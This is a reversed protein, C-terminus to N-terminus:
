KVLMMKKTATFENGIKVTYFYLGSTLNKSDFTVTHRGADLTGNVMEGVLQGSTNYVKLNVLNNEVLDFTIQTTPNFPNPFNQHLAYETIVAANYSPTAETTKDYVRRSGDMEVVALSYVYSTGNVASNDVFTYTHQSSSNTADLRAVVTGEAHGSVTRVVEFKSLNSESATAFDIKVSNDMAVSTLSTLEADLFGEISICVCGNATGVLTIDFTVGGGTGCPTPTLVLPGFPVNVAGPPCTLDCGVVGYLCGPRIFVFPPKAPDLCGEPQDSSWVHIVIPQGECVEACFYAPWGIAHAPDSNDANIDVVQTGHCPPPSCGELTACVIREADGCYTYHWVGGSYSWASPPVPAGDLTVLPPQDAPCEAVVDTCSPPPCAQWCTQTGGPILTVSTPASCQQQVVECTYPGTEAEIPSSGGTANTLTSWVSGRWIASGAQVRCWFRNALAGFNNSGGNFQLFAEGYFFGPMTLLTNGNLVLSYPGGLFDVQGFGAGFPVVPDDDGAGNNNLDCRIEVAAGDPIPGGSGDCTLDLETSLNYLLADSSTQGFALSCLALLAMVFLMRFKM